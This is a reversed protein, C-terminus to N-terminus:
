QRAAANFASVMFRAPLVVQVRPSKAKPREYLDSPHGFAEPILRPVVSTNVSDGPISIWGSHKSGM